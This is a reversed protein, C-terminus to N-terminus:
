GPSGLPMPDPVSQVELQALRTLAQERNDGCYEEEAMFADCVAPRRPDGHLVCLMAPSLHVCPVSAPKGGPMGFFPTSISIAICCAGCSTRCQM